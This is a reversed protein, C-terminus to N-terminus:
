GPLHEREEGDHIPGVRVWGNETAVMMGGKAVDQQFELERRRTYDAEDRTEVAEVWIQVVAVAAGVLCAGKFLRWLSLLVAGASSFDILWGYYSGPTPEAGFTLGKVFLFLVGIVAFVSRIRPMVAIRRVKLM